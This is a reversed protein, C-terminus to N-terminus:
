RARLQVAHGDPDEIAIGRRFGASPDALSVVVPRSSHDSAAGLKTAAAAADKTVVLTRWRVLDDGTADEPYPRGDRPTLYELLEVGPGKAARLTTIRLRAGPVDNLREQEPGYNESGGVVRLGLTDRYFHLSRETDGVVIATHDIGLFVRDSPRQWRADGKGAPFQILELPHGDPDKFYFARIGGAAPNWDPLRQPEPSTQAVHHRRLWLFAQDMDNVVIAIHQFSRDNSRADAPRPRGHGGLYEVLEIREAGLRMTVVRIGAESAGFLRDIEPGSTQVDAAKEFFLATSYFAVSREMDAVPIAVGSVSRAPAPTVTSGARSPAMYVVLAVGLAAVLLAPALRLRARTM